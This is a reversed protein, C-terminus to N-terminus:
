RERKQKDGVAERLEFYDAAVPPPGEDRPGEGLLLWPLRVALVKAMAAALWVTMGTAGSRSITPPAVGIAAALEKQLMDRAVLAEQIRGPMSVLQPGIM